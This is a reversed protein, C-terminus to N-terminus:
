RPEASGAQIIAPFEANLKYTRSLIGNDFVPPNGSIPEGRLFLPPYPASDGTQKEHGVLLIEYHSGVTNRRLWSTDDEIQVEIQMAFDPALHWERLPWLEYTVFSAWTSTTFYGYHMEHRSLPQGYRVHIENTGKHLSATFRVRAKEHPAQWDDTIERRLPNLREPPPVSAPQGNITVTVDEPTLAMIFEFTGSFDREACIRYTAEIRTRHPTASMKFLNGTYPKGLHFVLTESEVVLTSDTGRVSASPTFNDETPARMNAGAEHWLPCCVLLALVTRLRLRSLM